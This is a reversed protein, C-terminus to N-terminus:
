SLDRRKKKRNWFYIFVPIIITTMLWQWNSDFFGGVEVSVNKKVKINKNFVVIDKNIDKVKIVLKLPSEGSRKPTVTWEWETYSENDINQVKTSLSKIIFADSDVRLEATMEGSIKIDDITALSPYESNNIADDDGLILVAKNQGNSNKSIRVKISYTKFTKMTEPVSYAIWGMTTDLSNSKDVVKLNTKREHNEISKVVEKQTMVGEDKKDPNITMGDSLEVLTDNPIISFLTDSVVEEESVSISNENKINIELEKKTACSTLILVLLFLINKM